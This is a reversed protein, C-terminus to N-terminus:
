VSVPMKSLEASHQTIDFYRKRSPLKTSAQVWSANACDLNVLSSEKCDNQRRTLESM